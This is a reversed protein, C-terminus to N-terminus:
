LERIIMMRFLRDAKETRCYVRTAYWHCNWILLPRRVSLRLVSSNSLPLSFLLGVSTAYYVKPGGNSRTNLWSNILRNWDGRHAARSWDISQDIIWESFWVREFVSYWLYSNNCDIRFLLEWLDNCSDNDDVRFTQRNWLVRVAESSRQRAIRDPVIWFPSDKVVWPFRRGWPLFKPMRILM